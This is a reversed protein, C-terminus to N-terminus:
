DTLQSSTTTWVLFGDLPLGIQWEEGVRGLIQPSAVTKGGTPVLNKPFFIRKPFKFPTQAQPGIVQSFDPIQGSLLFQPIGGSKETVQFEFDVGEAVTHPCKSLNKVRSPSFKSVIHGEPRSSPNGRSSPLLKSRTV